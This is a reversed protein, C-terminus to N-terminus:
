IIKLFKKQGTELILNKYAHTHAPPPHTPPYKQLSYSSPSNDIPLNKLLYFFILMLTRPRLVRVFCLPQVVDKSQIRRVCHPYHHATARKNERTARPWTASAFVRQSPMVYIEALRENQHKHSSQGACPLIEKKFMSNKPFYKKEEGFIIM